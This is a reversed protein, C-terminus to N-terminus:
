RIDMYKVNGVFGRESYYKNVDKMAFKVEARDEVDSLDVAYLHWDTNLNFEERGREELRQWLSMKYESGEKYFPSNITIKVRYKQYIIKRM